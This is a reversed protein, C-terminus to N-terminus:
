DDPLVSMAEALEPPPPPGQDADPDETVGRQGPTTDVLMLASVLEPHRLALEQAVFGGYSHGIVMVHDLDLHGALTAADDALQEMTITDLPPRGSRGNGRHDLYLLTLREAL